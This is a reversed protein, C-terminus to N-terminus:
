LVLQRAILAGREDSQGSMHHVTRAQNQCKKPAVANRRWRFLQPRNNFKEEGLFRSAVVGKRSSRRRTMPRLHGRPVEPRSTKPRQTAACALGRQENAAETRLSLLFVPRATSKTLHKVCVKQVRRKMLSVASSHSHLPINREGVLM